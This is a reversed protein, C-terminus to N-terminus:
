NAVFRAGTRQLAITLDMPADITIEGTYSGIGSKTIALTFPGHDSLYQPTIRGDIGTLLSFVEVGAATRLVVIAGSVPDGDSNTVM